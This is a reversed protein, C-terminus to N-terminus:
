RSGSPRKMSTSAIRRARAGRLAPTAVASAASVLNAGAAATGAMVLRSPHFNRAPNVAAVANSYAGYANAPRLNNAPSPVYASLQHNMFPGYVSRSATTGVSIPGRYAAPTM